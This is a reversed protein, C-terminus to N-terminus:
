WWRFPHTILDTPQLWTSIYKKVQVVILYDVQGSGASSLEGVFSHDVSWFSLYM